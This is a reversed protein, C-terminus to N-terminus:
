QSDRFCRHIGRFGLPFLEVQIQLHAVLACSWHLGGNSYNKGSSAKSSFAPVYVTSDFSCTAPGVRLVLRGM